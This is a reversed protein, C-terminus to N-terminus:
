FNTTEMMIIYRFYVFTLCLETQVSFFGLAQGASPKIPRKPPKWVEDRRIIRLSEDDHRLPYVREKPELVEEKCPDEEIGEITRNIEEWDPPSYTSTSVYAYYEDGNYIIIVAGYNM